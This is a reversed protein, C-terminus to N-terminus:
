LQEAHKTRQVLGRRLHRVGLYYISLIRKALVQMTVIPMMLIM